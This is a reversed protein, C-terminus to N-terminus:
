IQPKVESKLGAKGYAAGPKAPSFVSFGKLPAERWKMVVQFLIKVSERM